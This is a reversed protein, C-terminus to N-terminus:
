FIFGNIAVRIVVLLVPLRLVAEFLTEGYVLEVFTLLLNLGLAVLPETM